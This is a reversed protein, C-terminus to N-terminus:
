FGKKLLKHNQYNDLINLFIKKCIEIQPVIKEGFKEDESRPINLIRARHPQYGKENALIWYGSVQIFHEDYIGSGTKLDILELVGDVEALIDMTGGFEY